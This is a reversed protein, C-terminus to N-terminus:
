PHVPHKMVYNVLEKLPATAVGICRDGGGYYVFIQGDIVVNGTPFVVNPVVGKKEYDHEPEMIFRPARAIVRGPNELDLMMAGTRYVNNRDVGHYLVLWGEETKIPPTSGGIKKYEWDSRSQALLSHAQWTMLNDSFALWISPKECGYKLGTWDAPRHLMVFKGGIKEPFLIVDRDDDDPSTIYGMRQFTRLDKSVLLASLTLNERMFRPLEKYARLPRPIEFGKQWYRGPPFPRCAYTILFYGGMKVIRADEVCGADYGDASPSLVPKDSVRKLKFGDKSTALGFHIKHEKDTGAARYLLYTTGNEHWAGPNCVVSKEWANKHNPLLIPNGKYKTLKM